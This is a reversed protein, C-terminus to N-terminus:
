TGTLPLACFVLKKWIQKLFDHTVLNSFGQTIRKETLPYGSIKFIRLFGAFPLSLRNPYRLWSYKYKINKSKLYECLKIAQTTKGSGDLGVFIIVNPKKKLEM